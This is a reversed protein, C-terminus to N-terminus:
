RTEGPTNDRTLLRRLLHWARIRLPVDSVYDNVVGVLATTLIILLVAATM